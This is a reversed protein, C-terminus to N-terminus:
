NTLFGNYATILSSNADDLLTKSYTNLINVEGTLNLTLKKIVDNTFNKVFKESFSINQSSFLSFEKYTTFPITFNNKKLYSIDNFFRVAHDNKFLSRRENDKTFSIIKLFLSHTHAEDTNLNLLTATNKYNSAKNLLFLFSNEYNKFLIKQFYLNFFSLGTPTQASNENKLIFNTYGCNYNLFKGVNQPNLLMTNKKIATNNLFNHQRKLNYFVSNESATENFYLKFTTKYYSSFDSYNFFSNSNFFKSFTKIKKFATIDQLPNLGLDNFNLFNLLKYNDISFLM